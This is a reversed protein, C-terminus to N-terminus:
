ALIEWPPFHFRLFTSKAEESRALFDVFVGELFKFKFTSKQQTRRLTVGNSRRPATMFGPRQALTSHLDPLRGHLAKHETVYYARLDHFTFRQDIVKLDLAKAMLKAWMAKFGQETYPNGNRTPFVAGVQDDKALSRLRVLLQRLADSILLVEVTQRARQKARKLRLVDGVQSWHLDIFEVRRSGTLAAFEAMGALVQTQGPQQRSWELFSELTKSSPADARPSERNRRIQKCPNNKIQGREVALNLLNAMLAMARNARVPSKAREMRLYRHLDPPPIDAPPMAGFVKLLAKSSQRYDIQTRDSLRMWDPGDQYVKWLENLTGRDDPTNNLEIVKRLAADRDTELTLWQGSARDRLRSMNGGDM